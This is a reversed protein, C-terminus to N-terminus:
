ALIGVRQNMRDTAERAAADLRKPILDPGPLVERRGLGVGLDLVDLVPPVRQVLGLELRGVVAHMLAQRRTPVAGLPRNRVLLLKSALAAGIGAKRATEPVNPQHLHYQQRKM